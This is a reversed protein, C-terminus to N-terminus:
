IQTNSHLTERPRNKEIGLEEMKYFLTKYSIKLMRSAKRKNWGSAELAYRIVRHEIERLAEARLEMLPKISVEEGQIEKPAKVVEEPVAIIGEPWEVEDAKMNRIIEEKVGEPEDGAMLRLIISSLERVNGPWHYAQFLNRLEADLQFEGKLKLTGQHKKIFYDTLLPIDEKRERLPPIEITIMSLRYYLDERFLGHKMDEKLNHNTAAIIWTNVKIDRTSGLRAFEGSQVVQLLKAQLLPPMDGIEDLFIVGDSAIEFKGPKFSVAGTFAGKEYGFLESELLTLPLAACNVKVFKGKKRPSSAHLLRAVVEKGTGTEGVILVHFVTKSLTKIMRRIKQIEPNNGLLVYEMTHFTKCM